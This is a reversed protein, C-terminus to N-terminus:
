DFTDGPDGVEARTLAGVTAADFGRRLLFAARKAREKPDSTGGRGYHRELQRRAIAPWDADAEALAEAIAADAVGHSKLEAAIRRPGYGAGARTRALVGAFRADDQYGKDVVTEVAAEVEERAYGGRALKAKLERRSQERRSLLDVAKGLASPVPKTRRTRRTDDKDTM